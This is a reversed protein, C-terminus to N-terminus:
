KLRSYYYKPFLSGDLNNHKSFKSYYDASKIDLSEIKEYLLDKRMLYVYIAVINMGILSFVENDSAHNLVNL